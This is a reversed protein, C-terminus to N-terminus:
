VQAFIGVFRITGDAPPMNFASDLAYDSGNVNIGTCTYGEDPYATVTLESLSATASGLDVVIYGHDSPLVVATSGNLTFQGCKSIKIGNGNVLCVGGSTSDVGGTATVVANEIIWGGKIVANTATPVTINLTAGNGIGTIYNGAAGSSSIGRQGAVSIDISNTGELNLTLSVGSNSLYIGTQTSSLTLNKFTINYSEALDSTLQNIAAATGCVGGYVTGNVPLMSGSIATLTVEEGSSSDEGTSPTEVTGDSNLTYVYADMFKGTRLDFGHLVIKKKYVDVIYCQSKENLEGGSANRPYAVSPVHVTNVNKDKVDCVNINPYTEEVAFEYHTHGSFVTVNDAGEIAAWIEDDETSSSSFGYTAGTALGAGGPLPLHMIVTIRKGKHEALKDVLWDANEKYPENLTAGAYTNTQGVTSEYMSMGLFVDNGKVIEFNEDVGTGAKWDEDTFGTDHNGRVPYYKLDTTAVTTKYMEMEDSRSYYGVDGTVFAFELDLKDLQKVANEFDAKGGNYDHHIDSLVAYSYLKDNSNSVKSNGKFLTGFIGVCAILVLGVAVGQMIKSQNKKNGM